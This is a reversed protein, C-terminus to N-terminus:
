GLEDEEDSPARDTLEIVQRPLALPVEAGDSTRPAMLKLWLDSRAALFDENRVWFYLTM